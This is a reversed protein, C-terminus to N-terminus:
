SCFMEIDDLVDEILGAFKVNKSLSQVELVFKDVDIKRHIRALHGVGTIAASTVDDNESGIQKFVFDQAWLFDREYLSISILANCILSASKSLAAKEADKKSIPIPTKYIKEM